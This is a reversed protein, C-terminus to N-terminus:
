SDRGLSPPAVNEISRSPRVTSLPWCMASRQQVSYRPKRRRSPTSRESSSCGRRGIGTSRRSPAPSREGAGGQGSGEVERRCQEAVPGKRERSRRRATRATVARCDSSSPSGDSSTSVKASQSRPVPLRSPRDVREPVQDRERRDVQRRGLRGESSAVVTNRVPRSSSDSAHSMAIGATGSWASCPSGAPRSSRRSPASTWRRVRTRETSAPASPGVSPRASPGRVKSRMTTATGCWTAGAIRGGPM